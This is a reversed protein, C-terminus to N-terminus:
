EVVPETNKFVYFINKFVLGYFTEFRTLLNVSCLSFVCGYAYMEHMKKTRLPTNTYYIKFFLCIDGMYM